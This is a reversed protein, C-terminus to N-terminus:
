ISANLLDFSVLGQLKKCYLAMASGSANKLILEIRLSLLEAVILSAALRPLARDIWVFNRVNLRDLAAM